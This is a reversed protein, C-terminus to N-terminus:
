RGAALCARVTRVVEEPHHRVDEWSPRLVRWGLRELANVRRRDSRYAARDSHFAFGDAEVVLRAGPWAFDVRAVFSGDAEHVEHQTEPAPLGALHLLVRLLTELVSGSLPDVLEAM